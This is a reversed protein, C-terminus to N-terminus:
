LPSRSGPILPWQLWEGERSTSKFVLQTFANPSVYMHFFQNLVTGFIFASHHTFASEDITLTIKIGQAFGRWAEPRVRKVVKEFCVDVIGLVEIKGWDNGHGGLMLLTDKLVDIREDVDAMFLGNLSLANILSWLSSADSPAEIQITPRELCTIAAPLAQEIQLAAGPPIQETLGRNTCTIHAFVTEEEMAQVEFDLNVFSLQIDSGTMKVHISEQRRAVWYASHSNQDTAYTTAFYPAYSKTNPAQDVAALVRNVSYIETTRERRVDPVLRYETTQHNLRVPESIRDFLNIIPTCGLLFNEPKFLDRQTSLVPASLSIFIEVEENCATLDLGDLEIFHFKQPFTFYEQVLRYAGHSKASAPLVAEDDGLGCFSIGPQIANFTQGGDPSLYVESHTQGLLDCLRKVVSPEGSLYFQLSGLTLAHLPTEMEKLTLRLFQRSSDSGSLANYDLASVVRVDSLSIPWLTVDYCTRFQCTVDGLTELKAGKSLTYGDTLKGKTLDVKFQAISMSPVVHVLHPYLNTLIATAMRATREDLDRRLRATLYAFSEILREVHPDQSPGEHVDLRSAIKPYKKAFHAGAQRLYGLEQDYYVVQKDSASKAM